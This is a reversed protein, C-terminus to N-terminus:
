IQSVSQLQTSKCQSIQVKVGTFYRSMTDFCCVSFHSGCCVCVCVCVSPKWRSIATLLVHSFSRISVFLLLLLLLTFLLDSLLPPFININLLKIQGQFVFLLKRDNLLWYLSDFIGFVYIFLFLIFCIRGM